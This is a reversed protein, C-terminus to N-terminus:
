AFRLADGVRVTGPHLVEAYIGLSAANDEALKRLVAPAAGLDAQPQTTMVCRVTPRVAKVVLEDGVAIARGLWAQEVLGTVESAIVINPRFRRADIAVNPLRMRLWEISAETLLHLPASDRHMVHDQDESEIKIATGCAASLISGLAPDDARMTRGDSFRVVVIGDVTAATFDLLGEIQRFRKTTKGSGLRGDSDKLAFYRDGIAGREDVVLSQLAEGRMSKVPYRWLAAILGLSGSV